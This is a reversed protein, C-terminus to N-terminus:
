TNNRRRTFITHAQMYMWRKIRPSEQHFLYVRLSQNVQTLSTICVSCLAWRVSFTRQLELRPKVLRTDSRHHDHKSCKHNLRLTPKESRRFVRPSSVFDSLLSESTLTQRESPFKSCAANVFQAARLVTNSTAVKELRKVPTSPVPASGVILCHHQRHTTHEQPPLNPIGCSERQLPTSDERISLAASWM